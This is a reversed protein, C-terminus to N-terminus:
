DLLLKMMKGPNNMFAKMVRYHETEEYNVTELRENIQYIWADPYAMIIPSHTSIIFQSGVKVLDHMISLMSMQRSPSLAAEPEDLIYVGDEHFKNQLLALFSEGHSQEHLSKGGFSNLFSPPGFSALEDINTAVNYFSEARLFFGTRPKRTGKVIKLYNNLDSHTAKSSFNFNRTGGEANFGYAVAIAELITSKGSGNEGVLFTVKPHLALSQLKKIVPLNFPYQSFSPVKDRKLEIYKIFQPSIGSEM